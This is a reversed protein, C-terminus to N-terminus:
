VDIEELLKRAYLFQITMNRRSSTSSSISFFYDDSEDLMNDLKHIIKDRNAELIKESYSCHTLVISMSVFLARNILSVNKKRFAREGFLAKCKRMSSIFKGYIERLYEEDMDNLSIIQNDLLSTMNGFDIFENKKFDYLNMYTIYRLCLEQAKMRRDKVQFRTVDLFEASSAMDCILKRTNSNSMINRVEQPNLSIGGTNIRRFVDFKVMQPCRPDLINVALQTDEIRLQYKRDLDKFRAKDYQTLYQLGKLSFENNIFRYITTLRQMGDIVTKKGYKDEDFYFAPIPIKLMLSEILLSQKKEDWVYNRQFEPNLILDQQEIWKCVQYLSLMRQEIRIDETRYPYEVNAERSDEDSEYEVGDDDKIEENYESNNELM